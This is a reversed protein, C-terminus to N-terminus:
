KKIDKETNKQTRHLSYVYLVTSIVLSAWIIIDLVLPLKIGDKALWEGIIKATIAFLLLVPFIYWYVIHVWDSFIAYNNLYAKGERTFAKGDYSRSLQTELEHTYNYQKEINIVTQFYRIAVYLLAFWVLSGIVNISITADIALQKQIFQTLVSESQNPSVYQFAMVGLLVLMAVFNWERSKGLKKFDTVTNNYHESLVTLKTDESLKSM